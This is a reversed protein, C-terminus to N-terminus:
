PLSEPRKKATVHKGNTGPATVNKTCQLLRNHTFRLLRLVAHGIKGNENSESSLGKLCQVAEGLFRKADRFPKQSEVPVCQMIIDIMTRLDTVYRTWPVLDRATKKGEDLQLVLSEAYGQALESAAKLM